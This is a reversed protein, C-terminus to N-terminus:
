RLNADKKLNHIAPDATALRGTETGGDQDAGIAFGSMEVKDLTTATQDSGAVGNAGDSTQDFFASDGTASPAADGVWNAGTAWATSSSGDWVKNAM